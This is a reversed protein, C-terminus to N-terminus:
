LVAVLQLNLGKLLQNFDKFMELWQDCWEKGVGMPLSEQSREKKNQPMDFQVIFSAGKLPRPINGM